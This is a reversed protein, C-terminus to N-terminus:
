SGWVNQYSSQVQLHLTFGHITPPYNQYQGQWNMTPLGQVYETTAQTSEFYGLRYQLNFLLEWFRTDWICTQHTFANYQKFSINNQFLLLSKLRSYRKNM